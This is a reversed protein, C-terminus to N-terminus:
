NIWPHEHEFGRDMTVLADFGAGMARVLEHDKLKHWGLEQATKAAGAPFLEVVRPDVSADLLARV